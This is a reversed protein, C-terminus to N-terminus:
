FKSIIKSLDFRRGAYFRINGLHYNISSHESNDMSINDTTLNFGAYFKGGNYGTALRIQSRFAIKTKSYFYDLNEKQGEFNVFAIGPITSLTIFFRKRIVLTYAYGIGAGFTLTKGKILYARENFVSELQMPIISSDSQLNFFNLYGGLLLSGARKKQAEDQIFAARYSFRDSNLIYYFSGGLAATAIDGRKPYPDRQSNWAPNLDKANEIYFGKYTQLNLDIITKRGYRTAQLDKQFTKGYKDNDNNIFPLNFAFALGIKKFYAGFGMGISENPNYKLSKKSTKDYINFNNGKSIITAKTTLKDSYSTIYLTDYNLKKAPHNQSFSYLTTFLFILIISVRIYSM